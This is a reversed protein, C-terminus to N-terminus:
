ESMLATRRDKICERKKKFHYYYVDKGEDHCRLALAGSRMKDWKKECSLDHPLSKAISADLRKCERIPFPDDGHSQGATVYFFSGQPPGGIKKKHQGADAIGAFAVLAIISAFAATARV